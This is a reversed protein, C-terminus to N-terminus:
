NGQPTKIFVIAQNTGSDVAKELLEALTDSDFKFIWGDTVSVVAVKKELVELLEKNKESM